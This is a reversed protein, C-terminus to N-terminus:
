TNETFQLNSQLNSEALCETPVGKYTDLIM